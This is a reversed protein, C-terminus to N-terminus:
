RRVTNHRQAPSVCDKEADSERGVLLLYTSTHTHTHTHTQSPSFLITAMMKTDTFVPRICKVRYSSLRPHPHPHLVPTLCAPPQASPGQFHSSISCLRSWLSNAALVLRNICHAHVCCCVCVWACVRAVVRVRLCLSLRCVASIM